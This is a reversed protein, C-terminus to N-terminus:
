FLFILFTVLFDFAVLYLYCVENKWRGKQAEEEADDKGGDPNLVEVGEYGLLRYLFSSM